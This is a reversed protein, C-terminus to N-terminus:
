RSPCPPNETTLCPLTATVSQFGLSQREVKNAQGGSYSYTTTSTATSDRGDWVAVATAVPATGFGPGNPFNTAPQYAVAVKGGLPNTVSTMLDARLKSTGSVAADQNAGCLLDPKGDGDFDGMQVFDWCFGSIWTTAPALSTGTWKRVKFGAGGTGMGGCVMEAAGDGDVDAGFAYPWDAYNPNPNSCLVGFSGQDLYANGTSLRIKGNLVCGLDTRGDGNWDGFVYDLDDCFSADAASVPARFGSGTSPYVRMVDNSRGLCYWDSKGDGDLDLTGTREGSGCFADGFISFTFGTGTSLGVFVSNLDPKKCSVDARGDGNFDATAVDPISGSCTTGSVTAVGWATLPGFATGTSM